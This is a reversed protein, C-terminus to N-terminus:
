KKKFHVCGFNKGVLIMGEDLTKKDHLRIGDDGLSILALNVCWGHSKEDQIKQYFECGSCKNKAM